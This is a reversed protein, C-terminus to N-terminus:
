IGIQLTNILAALRNWTRLNLEGTEPLGAIKQLARVTQETDTDYEGSIVVPALNAYRQAALNLLSQVLQVQTGRDGQRLLFYGSPFVRLPVAPDTLAHYTQVISEWTDGDIEGTVPLGYAEQYARVALGAEETFEKQPLVVPIRSDRLAIQYLLGLIEEVHEQKQAETYLM